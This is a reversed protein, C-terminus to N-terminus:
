RLASPKPTLSVGGTHPCWGGPHDDVVLQRRNLLLFIRLNEYKKTSIAIRNTADDAKAWAPPGAPAGAFTHDIGMPTPRPMPRAAPRAPSPCPLTAPATASASALFGPARGPM